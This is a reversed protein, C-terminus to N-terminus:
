RAWLSVEKGPDDVLAQAQELSCTIWKGPRNNRAIRIRDADLIIVQYGEPRGMLLSRVKVAAAMTAPQM